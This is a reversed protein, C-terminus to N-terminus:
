KRPNKAAARRYISFAWWGLGLGALIMLAITTWQWAEPLYLALFWAKADTGTLKFIAPVIGQPFLLIPAIWFLNYVIAKEGISLQSMSSSATSNTAEGGPGISTESAKSKRMAVLMEPSRRELRIYALRGLLWFSATGLMLGAPVTLWQVLPSNLAIGYWALIGLPSLIGVTLLLSTMFQAWDIGHEFIDDGRLQPDTMPLLRFASMFIFVGAGIGLGAILTGTVVPIAEYYGSVFISVLASVAAVPGIILLWAIQRGRVDHRTAGPTTVTQWLATGDSGYVNATAAAASAVFLLAAFPLLAVVGVTMPYICTFISYFFAFYLFSSRTYDRAWTLFEKRIVASLPSGSVVKTLLSHRRSFRNRTHSTTLRRGLLGGWIYSLIGILAISAAVLALPLIWNGNAAANIAVVGWGSPLWYLITAFTEPLGNAFIADIAGLAWWGTIFFAMVAGTIASSVLSSLQSTTAARLGSTVVRSLFMAIGLQTFLFVVGVLAPGIGFKAGYAAMVLFALATTPVTIGTVSALTLSNALKRASTPLMRFYEPRLTPDEGGFLTPGLAWGLTWLGMALAVLGSAVEPKAPNASAVELTFFIAVLAFAAQWLLIALRGGHLSRKLVAWKM